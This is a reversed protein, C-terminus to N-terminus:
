ETKEMTMLTYEEREEDSLGDSSWAHCGNGTRPKKPLAIGSLRAETGYCKGDAHCYWACNNCTMKM